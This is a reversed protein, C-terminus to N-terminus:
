IVIDIRVWGTLKGLPLFGVVKPLANVPEKWTLGYRSDFGRGCLHFASTRVGVGRRSDKMQINSRKSPGASSHNRERYIWCNIASSRNYINCKSLTLIGLTSQVAASPPRGATIVILYYHVVQTIAIGAIYSPVHLWRAISRFPLRKAFYNKCFILRMM